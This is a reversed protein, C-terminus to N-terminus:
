YISRTLFRTPYIHLHSVKLLASPYYTGDKDVAKFIPWLADRDNADRPAPTPPPRNVVAPRNHTQPPAPGGRGYGYTQPPPSGYDAFRPDARPDPRGEPRSADYRPSHAAENYRPDTGYRPSGSSGGYGGSGGSPTRNNYRDDPRLAQSPLPPPPKDTRVRPPPQSPASSPNGMM